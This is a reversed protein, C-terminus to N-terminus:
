EVVGAQIEIQKATLQLVADGVLIRRRLVRVKIIGASRDCLDIAVAAVVAANLILPSPGDCVAILGDEAKLLFLAPCIDRRIGGCMGFSALDPFVNLKLALHNRAQRKGGAFPM